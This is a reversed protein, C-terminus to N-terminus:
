KKFHKAIRMEIYFGLLLVFLCYPHFAGYNIKLLLVFYLLVSIMVVLFTGLLKILKKDHYIIKYNVRAFLYFFIGYVFSFLLTIIQVQLDM